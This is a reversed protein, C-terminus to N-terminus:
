PAYNIHWWEDPAETKGWGYGWGIQDIVARMEPTELDVATGVEHASTGPPAALPGTGNLYAEYMAAQQEYSRYGSAPGAPHIDQGYSYLAEERMSNWSAAASAELPIEGYPSPVTGLPVSASTTTAATTATAAPISLTEGIYVYSDAARGNAAALADITIGNASAISSLSEGEIVTHGGTSATTTTTGSDTPAVSTDVGATALAAAGEEVTPIQITQGATVTATEALGNYAAVTRTTFNNSAAISWLSEGPQVVHPVAAGAQATHTAALTAGALLTALAVRRKSSM